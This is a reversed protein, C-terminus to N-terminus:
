MDPITLDLTTDKLQALTIDQFMPRYNRGGSRHKSRCFLEKEGSDYILIHEDNWVMQFLTRENDHRMSEQIWEAFIRLAEPNM